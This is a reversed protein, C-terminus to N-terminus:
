SVYKVEIPWPYKQQLRQGRDLTLYPHHYAPDYEFTLKENEADALFKESFVPDLNTGVTYAKCLNFDFGRMVVEEITRNVIMLQMPLEFDSKNEWMGTIYPCTYGRHKVNKWAGSGIFKPGGLSYLFVDIDKVERGLASDRVYGGAISVNGTGYIAQLHNMWEKLNDM